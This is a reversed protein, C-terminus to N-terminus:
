AGARGGKDAPLPQPNQARHPHDGGRYIKLKSIMQRGLRTKPLMGKVARRVVEEPRKEMMAELTDIKVGSPYGTHRFFTKDRLKKGTIRVEAAHLIVVHDGRDAHPTFTPKHKGRLISAVRSALRGLTYERADVVYWDRSEPEAAYSRTIDVAAHEKKL